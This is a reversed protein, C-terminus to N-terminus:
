STAHARSSEGALAERLERARAQTLPAGQEDQLAGQLRENLNRASAVLQDFAAAPSLPGPLVVFLFLGTFRQTDMAVPDFTGPKNLSAASVIARGDEAPKHFISLKGAVFGEYGLAQRLARGTFRENSTAVLRVAVIRRQGEPPWDVIPEASADVPTEPHAVPVAPPGTAATVDTAADPASMEEVRLGLLSEDAVELVPLDDSRSPARMQPLALTPELAAPPAEARATSARTAPEDVDLPPSRRPRRLEWWALGVLFLAGLVLLIWRLEPM